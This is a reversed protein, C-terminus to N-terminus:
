IRGIIDKFIRTPQLYADLFPMLALRLGDM